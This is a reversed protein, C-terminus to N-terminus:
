EDGAADLVLDEGGAALEADADGGIADQRAPQDAAVPGLLSFGGGAVIAGMGRAEGALVEVV